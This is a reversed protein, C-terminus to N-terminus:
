RNLFWNAAISLISVIAGWLILVKAGIGIPSKGSGFVAETLVKRAEECSKKEAACTQIKGNLQTVQVKVESVDKSVDDLKDYVRALDANNIGNDGM